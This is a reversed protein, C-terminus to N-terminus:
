WRGRLLRYALILAVASLISWLLSIGFVPPIIHPVHFWGPIHDGLFVGIFGLVLTSFMPRKRYGTVVQALTGIAFALILYYLLRLFLGSM